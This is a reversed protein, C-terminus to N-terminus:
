SSELSLGDFTLKCGDSLPSCGMVGIRFKGKGEDQALGFAPLERLTEGNYTIKILPLPEDAQVEIKFGFTHASASPVPYIARHKNNKTLFRLRVGLAGLV